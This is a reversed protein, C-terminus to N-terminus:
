HVRGDSRNTTRRVTDQRVRKQSAFLETLPIQRNRKDKVAQVVVEQIRGSSQPPEEGEPLIELKAVFLKPSERKKSGNLRKARLPKDTSTEEALEAEQNLDATLFAQAVDITKVRPSPENVAAVAQREVDEIPVDVGDSCSLLPHTSSASCPCGTCEPSSDDVSLKSIADQLEQFSDPGLPPFAGTLLPAPSSTSATTAAVRETGPLTDDSAGSREADSEAESEASKTVLAQKWLAKTSKKGRKSVKIGDTQSLRKQRLAKMKRWDGGSQIESIREAVADKLDPNDETPDQLDEDTLLAAGLGAGGMELRTISTLMPYLAPGPLPKTLMDALMKKTNLYELTFVESELKHRLFHYKIQMHKTRDSVGVQSAIQISATNDEFIKSPPSNEFAMDLDSFLERLFILERVTFVLSIIEAETSSLPVGPITKSRWSLLGYPTSFIQGM